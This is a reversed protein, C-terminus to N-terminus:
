CVPPLLTKPILRDLVLWQSIREGEAGRERGGERGGVGGGPWRWWKYRQTASWCQVNRLDLVRPIMSWPSYLLPSPSTPLPPDPHTYFLKSCHMDSYRAPTDCGSSSDGELRVYVLYCDEMFCHFTNTDQQQMTTRGSSYVLWSCM